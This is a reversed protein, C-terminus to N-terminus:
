SGDGDKPNSTEPPGAPDTGAGAAQGADGAGAGGFIRLAYVALPLTVVGAIAGWLSLINDPAFAAAALVAGTLLYRLFYQMRIYNVGQKEEMEVTRAVAREL